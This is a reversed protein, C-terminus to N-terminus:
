PATPQKGRFVQRWSLPRPRHTLKKSCDLCVTYTQKDATTEDLRTLVISQHRHTCGSLFDWLFNM